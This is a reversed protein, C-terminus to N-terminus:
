IVLSAETSMIFYDPQEKFVTSKALAISELALATEVIREVVAYPVEEEGIVKRLGSAQKLREGCVDSGEESFFRGLCRIYLNVRVSLLEIQV